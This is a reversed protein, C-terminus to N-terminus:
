FPLGESERDFSHEKLSNLTKEAIQHASEFPTDVLINYIVKLDTASLTLNVRNVEDQEVIEQYIPRPTASTHSTADYLNQLQTPKM